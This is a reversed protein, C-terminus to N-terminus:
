RMVRYQPRACYIDVKYHKILFVMYTIEYNFPQKHKLVFRFMFTTSIISKNICRKEVSSRASRPLLM